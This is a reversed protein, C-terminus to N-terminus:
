SWIKVIEFFITGPEVAISKIGSIGQSQLKDHLSMAFVKFGASNRVLRFCYLETVANALKTMHYRAVCANSGDGGLTQPACKEFYIGELSGDSGKTSGRKFHRAGSSHQVVRAEGRSNVADQLCPLVHKTLLFHSLHNTQM